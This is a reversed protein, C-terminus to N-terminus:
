GCQFIMWIKSFDRRALDKRRIWFFLHGGDAWYVTKEGARLTGLQFLLTWESLATRGIEKKEEYTLRSMDAEDGM